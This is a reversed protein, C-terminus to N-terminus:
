VTTNSPGSPAADAELVEFNLHRRQLWYAVALGASDAGIVVADLM